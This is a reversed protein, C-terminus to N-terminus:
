RGLAERLAKEAEIQTGQHLEVTLSRAIEFIDLADAYKYIAFPRGKFTGYVMHDVEPNPTAPTPTASGAHGADCDASNNGPNM